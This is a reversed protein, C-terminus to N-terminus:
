RAPWIRNSDLLRQNLFHALLQRRLGDLEGQLGPRTALDQREAPDHALDFLREEGTRQRRLYKYPWRVAGLYLGDFPQVLLVARARNPPALLSRGVFHHEDSLGILDLLTPAIDIQSCAVDARRAPALHGPWLILLPVRFLQEAAGLENPPPVRGTTPFGHDGTLVVISNRLGPRRRLESFLDGLYRDAMNLSDLFQEHESRPKPFLRRESAPAQDFTYHHAITAVFAFTPTAGRDVLAAVERYVRNDQWGWGWREADYAGEVTRVEAFGLRTMAANTEDYELEDHGAFFLTRYGQDALLRPLCRLRLEPYAPLVKRWIGSPLSCLISFHGRSTQVSSSYFHEAYLGKRLLRNLTPTIERGEDTRAEVFGADFSELAVVFIHPRERPASRAATSRLRVYPFPEHAPLGAAVLRSPSSQRFHRLVTRIFSAVEDHNHWPAAVLLAYVGGAAIMRRRRIAPATPVRWRSLVRWPIESALVLLFGAGIALLGARCLPSALWWGLERRFFALPDPALMAFDPPTRLSLHELCLLAYLALLALEAAVLAARRRALALHLLHLGCLSPLLSLAFLAAGGASWEIREGSPRLHGVLLVTAQLVLVIVTSPYVAVPSWRELLERLRRM